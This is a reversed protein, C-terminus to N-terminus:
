RVYWLRVGEPHTVWVLVATSEGGEDVNPFHVLVGTLSERVQQGCRDAFGMDDPFDPGAYQIEWDAYESTVSTNRFHYAFLDPDGQGPHSAPDLLKWVNEPKGAGVNADVMWLATAEEAASQDALAVSAPCANENYGTPLRGYRFNAFYALNNPGGVATVTWVGRSGQTVLRELTILAEEDGHDTGMGECPEIGGSYLLCSAAWLTVSNSDGPGDLSDDFGVEAWGLVQLGYRTVVEEADTQWTFDANNADAETQATEAEQRTEHPWAAAPWKEAGVSPSAPDFSGGNRDRLVTWAGLGVGAVLALATVGAVVQRTRHRREARRHVRQLADPKVSVSRAERELLDKLETM